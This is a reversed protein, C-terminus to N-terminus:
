RSSESRPIVLGDVAYCSDASVMLPNVDVEALVDGLESAMVGLRVIAHCLSKRDVAQRGRVGDILPAIKLESLTREAAFEDIPPLLFRRDKLIEIYVGGAGVMVLPGFQEDVVVGLALEVDGSIMPSVLVRDGLSASLDDFAERVADKDVLGPKVGGVDSKHQIGPMATKLIVPYGFKEAAALLDDVNEVVENPVVPVGFDALLAGSESEDLGEGSSLRTRWKEVIESDTAPPTAIKPRNFFDRASFAHKTALIANTAGDLLPIGALSVDLASEAKPRRSWNLALAMPKGTRRFAELPLHRFKDWGEDEFFIDTFLVTLATDPDEALADLSNSFSHEFDNGNWADVPNVPPLGYDLVEALRQTTRENIEAFPVNLKDAVDIVMGRVGGSDHASALKGPGLRPYASLLSLTAALEDLDQVRQVGYFEFLADYAADNGALAGSHSQALRTSLETQGVKLAVVPIKKENAKELAAKFREPDRITELMLGVVKTSSLDLAYDLYDAATTVLEQGPSVILNFRLHPDIGAFARYVTGSHCILSISGSELEDYDFWTARIGADLEVFGMCNAGCVPIGADLAISRIRDILPPEIDNELYASTFIVAAKAGHEIALRLQQEVHKNGVALIALEAPEPLESYSTYCGKGLIVDYKPNIPYVQGDFSGKIAQYTALYGLSGEKDSAGVVAISRPELLPRLSHEAM